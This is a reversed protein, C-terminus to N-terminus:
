GARVLLQDGPTELSFAFQALGAGCHCDVLDGPEGVEPFRFWSLGRPCGEHRFYPALREDDARRAMVPDVRVGDRVRCLDSSLGTCRFPARRTQLSAARFLGPKM